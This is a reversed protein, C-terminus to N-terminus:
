TGHANTSTLALIFLVMTGLGLLSGVTAFRVSAWNLGLFAGKKRETLCAVFVLVCAAFIAVFVFM